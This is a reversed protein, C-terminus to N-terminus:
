RDPGEDAGPEVSADPVAELGEHLRQACNPPSAISSPSKNPPWPSESDPGDSDASAQLADSGMEVGSQQPHPHRSHPGTDAAGADLAGANLVFVRGTAPGSPPNRLVGLGQKELAMLDREARDRDRRYRRPGSNSLWHVTVQRGPRGAIVQVLQRLRQAEPTEVIAQGFIYQASRECYRWLALAAELDRGTVVGRRELLAYLLSLRTVQAEARSIVAGLLGPQGESLELYNEAWLARAEADREVSEFRRAIELVERFRAVFEELERPDLHGGEPLVKSRRVATWLFRNAFGNAMDTKTLEKKVEDRTVHGVISIHAGTARAPSNKTLSRLDGTDWAARMVASLTSGERSMVRLAGAVEAEHVLLRKDSVGSDVLEEEYGVTRGNERIARKGWIPDRVAWIL